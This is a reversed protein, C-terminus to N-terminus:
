VCIGFIFWTFKRLSKWWVISHRAPMNMHIICAMIQTGVCLLFMAQYASRITANHNIFVGCVASDSNSSVSYLDTCMNEIISLNTQNSFQRTARHNHILTPSYHPPQFDSRLVPLTEVWVSSFIISYVNTAFFWFYVLFRQFKYVTLQTTM